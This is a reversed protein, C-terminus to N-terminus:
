LGLKEKLKTPLAQKNILLNITHLRFYSRSIYDYGKHLRDTGWSNKVLYFKAGTQDHAIGVIHMLHDDTTTFNAFSEQRIEQTIEKEKVPKTFKEKKEAKTLDEWDKLPVIAYDPRDYVDIDEKGRPSFGKDSVDADWGVTFGKEIAEDVIKELDDLPVNYYDSNFTWNDPVELRCRSYFPYYTYSTVEIYDDMNLGLYDKVFSRPTYTKGKYTFTEPSKGLYVDLVAEFADLWRPTVRRGRRNLVGDLMGKLISVMESHNHRKEAINQGPYVEEPVIGHREIQDIVDHFQGGQGFNAAGHLRIYSKAKYPYTHRVVFMESLDIEEKGLRLVESELYSIASFDWCTGTRGQSKVPTRKLEKQITFEYVPKTKKSKKKAIGSAPILVLIILFIIVKTLKKNIRM